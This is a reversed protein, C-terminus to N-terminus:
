RAEGRERRSGERGERSCEQVKWVAEQRDGRGAKESLHTEARLGRGMSFVGPMPQLSVERQGPLTPDPIRGGM